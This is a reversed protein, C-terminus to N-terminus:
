VALVNVNWTFPRTKFCLLPWRGWISHRAGRVLQRRNRRWSVLRQSSTVDGETVGAGGLRSTMERYMAYQVWLVSALPCETFASLARM